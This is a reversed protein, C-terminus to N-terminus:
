NRGLRKEEYIVYKSLKSYESHWCETEKVCLIQWCETEKVCLIQIQDNM